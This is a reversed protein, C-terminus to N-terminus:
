SSADLSTSTAADKELAKNRASFFSYVLTIVAFLFTMLLIFNSVTRQKGTPLPLISDIGFLCGCPGRYHVYILGIKYLIAAGCFWLLLAARGLGHRRLVQWGVLLEACAALALVTWNTLVSFIPNPFGLYDSVLHNSEFILGHLKLIGLAVFVGGFVKLAWDLVGDFGHAGFSKMATVRLLTM